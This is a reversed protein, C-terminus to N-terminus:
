ARSLEQLKALVQAAHGKVSVRPWVHAVKGQPDILFTSRIVGQVKKGYMTKEGYAGYKDMLAHEPDSLLDVGLKHKAIFKIHKEPADPSCGLVKADLAAFERLTSTFDCAETTCGPTDDRPYFYLVVWAGALDALKVKNGNQDPLTFAPAKKGVLTM